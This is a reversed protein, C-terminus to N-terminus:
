KNDLALNKATQGLNKMKPGVLELGQEIAEEKGIQKYTTGVLAREEDNFVPINIAGPLHGEHFESPSRVDLIPVNKESFIFKEVDVRQM